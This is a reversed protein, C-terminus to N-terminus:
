SREIINDPGIIYQAARFLVPIMLWSYKAADANVLAIPISILFVLPPIGLRTTIRRVVAIPTSPSILRGHYTAYLWLVLFLLGIAALNLAYFMVAVRYQGYSSVMSSSFPLFVILMLIWINIWILRSDYTRISRFLRHHSMWYLAIVLFSIVFGEFSPVLHRLAGALDAGANGPLQIDIILLTIAIAFVADSFFILREFGSEDEEVHGHADHEAARDEVKAVPPPATRVPRRRHKTNPRRNDRRRSSM